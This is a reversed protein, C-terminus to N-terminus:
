QGEIHLYAKVPMPDGRADRLQRADHERVGDSLTSIARGEGVYIGIHSWDAGYIILDGEAPPLADARGRACFWDYYSRVPQEGTAGVLGSAACDAFVRYVLGTCDFQDPGTAGSRYTTPNQSYYRARSVVCDRVMMPTRSASAAPQPTSSPVWPQVTASAVPQSTGLPVSPATTASALRILSPTVAPSALPTPPVTASGVPQAVTPTPRPAECSALLIAWCLTSVWLFPVTRTVCRNTLASLKPASSM